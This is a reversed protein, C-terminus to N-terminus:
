HKINRCDNKKELSQYHMKLQNLITIANPDKKLEIAKGMLVIARNLDKKNGTWYFSRRFIDAFHMYNLFNYGQQKIKKVTQKIRFATKEKIFDAELFQYHNIAVNRIQGISEWGKLVPNICNEYKFKPNNKFIRIAIGNMYFPDKKYKPHEMFNFVPLELADFRDNEM